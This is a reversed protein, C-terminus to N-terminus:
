DLGNSDAVHVKCARSTYHQCALRVGDQLEHPRLMARDAATPAPVRPGSMMVKCRGCVGGGGCISTIPTGKSQYHQLWTKRRYLTYDGRTINRGLLILGSLSFWLALLGASWILLHNFSRGGSYDMFHLRFAWDALTWPTNRHEMVESTAANVYIRTNLDDNMRIRFGNGQWGPLEDSHTIADIDAVDGPGTYSDRALALATAKGTQWPAGDSARLYLTQNPLTIKYQGQGDVNRLQITQASPYRHYLGAFGLQSAGRKLVPPAAHPAMYQHGSMGQHGTLAFYLGSGLWLVVQVVLILGTWRHLWQMARMM